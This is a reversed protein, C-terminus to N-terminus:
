AALLNEALRPCLSKVSSKWVAYYTKPKCGLERLEKAGLDTLIKLELEAVQGPSKRIRAILHGNHDSLTIRSAEEFMDVLQSPNCICGDFSKDTPIVLWRYRRVYDWITSRVLEGSDPSDFLVIQSHPRHWTTHGVDKPPHWKIKQPPLEVVPAPAPVPATMNEPATVKVDQGEIEPVDITITKNNATITITM